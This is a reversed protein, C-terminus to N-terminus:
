GIQSIYAYGNPIWYAHIKAYKNLYVKISIYVLKLITTLNPPAQSSEPIRPVLKFEATGSPVRNQNGGPKMYVWLFPQAPWGERRCPPPSEASSWASSLHDRKLWKMKIGWGGHVLTTNRRTGGLVSGGWRHSQAEVTHRQFSGGVGFLSSKYRSNSVQTGLFFFPTRRQHKM